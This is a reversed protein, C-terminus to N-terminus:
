DTSDGYQREDRPHFAGPIIAAVAVRTEPLFEFDTIFVRGDVVAPGSFGGKIPMRWTVKLGDAPFRDIIGDETWVATM